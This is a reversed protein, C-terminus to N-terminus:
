DVNRVLAEDPDAYSAGAGQIATVGGVLARVEAYRTMVSGLSPEERLRNWPAKVVAEYADSARWEYRNAYRQPPEWPAFVNFEPHGHLDILGPLVVSDELDLLPIGQPRRPGIRAMVGADVSVYGPDIVADPTVICGRLCYPGASEPAREPAVRRATGAAPRPPVTVVGEAYVDQQTSMASASSRADPAMTLRQAPPGDLGAASGVLAM